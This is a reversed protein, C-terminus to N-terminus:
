RVTLQFQATASRISPRGTATISYQHTGFVDYTGPITVTTSFKGTDDAQAQGIVDVQFRIEVTDGHGFGSGSVTVKDGSKGSGQSLSLEANAQSSPGLTLRFPSTGSRASNEGTVVIDYQQEGFVDYEAPITANLSFTGDSGAQGRAIQTVHFRVTLPEGAAFHEGTITIPTGSPGRSPNVSITANVGVGPLFPLRFDGFAGLQSALGLAGTIVGLVVSVKGLFGWFGREGGGSSQAKGKPQGGDPQRPPYQGPPASYQEPQSYVPQQAPYAQPSQYRPDQPERPAPSGYITM